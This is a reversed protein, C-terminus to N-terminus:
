ELFLSIEFSHLVLHRIVHIIYRFLTIGLVYLDSCSLVDLLKQLVFCFRGRRRLQRPIAWIQALVM